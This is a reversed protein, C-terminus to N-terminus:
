ILSITTEITVKRIEKSTVLSLRIKTNGTIYGDAVPVLQVFFDSLADPALLDLAKSIDKKMTILYMPLRPKGIFKEAVERAIAVALFTTDRVFQRDFQSRGAIALTPSDSWIARNGYDVIASTYRKANLKGITEANFIKVGLDQVNGPVFDHTPSKDFPLEQKYAAYLTAPNMFYKRGSNIESISTIFVGLPAEGRFNNVADILNAPRNLESNSNETLSTLWTNISSQELDALPRIPIELVCENVLNSSRDVYPLIKDYMNLPKDEPLGTEDNYGAIVDDLYCGMVVNIKRPYLDVSEFASKVAETYKSKTSTSGDSGGSLAGPQIVAGPLVQGSIAPLEPETLLELTVPLTADPLNAGNIFEITATIYDSIEIDSSEFYVKANYYMYTNTPQEAGFFVNDGSVFYNRDDGTVLDSKLKAESYNVEYRYSAAYVDGLNTTEVITLKGTTTDLTYHTTEVLETYVSAGNRKVYLKFEWDHTVSGSILYSNDWGSVSACYLDLELNSQNATTPSVSLVSEMSSERIFDDVTEPGSIDKEPIVTLVTVIDGAEAIHEVDKTQYASQIEILKNGWSENSTAIAPGLDYATEIGGSTTVIDLSIEKYIADFGANLKNEFIPDSNILEVLDSVNTTVGPASPNLSLNWGKTTGDPLEISFYSPENNDDETVNVKTKNYSAGFPIAEVWLSYAPKGDILSYSLDGSLHTINEYLDIRSKSVNGVRILAIDPKGKTSNVYEYYGRVLSTDFSADVPVEGFLTRVNDPTPRIPVNMPGFTATGFIFTGDRSVTISAPPTGADVIDSRVGNFDDLSM